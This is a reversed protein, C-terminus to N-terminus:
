GNSQEEKHDLAQFYQDVEYILQNANTPDIGGYKSIYGSLARAHFYERKTLGLGDREKIVPAGTFDKSGYTYKTPFAPKDSNKM